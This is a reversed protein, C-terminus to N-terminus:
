APLTLRTRIYEECSQKEIEVIVKRVSKFNTGNKFMEQIKENENNLYPVRTRMYEKRVSSQIEM